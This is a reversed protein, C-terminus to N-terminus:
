EVAKLVKEVAALRMQVDALMAQVASLTTVTESQVAVAQQAVQRYGDDNAARSRAQLILAFYRMSFVILVVALPLCLTLLYLTEQSM